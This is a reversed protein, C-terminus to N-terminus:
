SRQPQVRKRNLRLIRQRLKQIAALRPASLFMLHYDVSTPKPAGMTRAHRQFVRVMEEKRRWAQRRMNRHSLTKTLMELMAIEYLIQLRQTEMEMQHSTQTM